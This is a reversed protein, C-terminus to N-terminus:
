RSPGHPSTIIITERLIERIRAEAERRNLVGLRQNLSDPPPTQDM